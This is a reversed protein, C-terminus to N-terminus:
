ASPRVTVRTVHKFLLRRGDEMEIVFCFPAFRHWVKGGVTDLIIFKSNADLEKGPIVKKHIFGFSVELAGLELSKGSAPGEDQLTKATIQPQGRRQQRKGLLLWSIDVGEFIRTRMTCHDTLAVTARTMCGLRAVTFRIPKQNAGLDLVLEPPTVRLYCLDMGRPSAKGHIAVPLEVAGCVLLSLALCSKSIALGWSPRSRRRYGAREALLFM